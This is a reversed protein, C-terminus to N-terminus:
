YEVSIEEGTKSVKLCTVQQGTLEASREDPQQGGISIVYDGPRVKCEGEETIYAFDRATLTIAVKRKEGATLPVCSIGKLQFGPEFEQADQRKVYVQVTEWLPYDSENTVTASVTVEQGVDTVGVSVKEEDYVVKGYHLGYGFPYLVNKNEYRYTRHAMSYDTFEPLNETGQYFTVPLKGSPSFEGFLLQAISKGGRAGPYWCDVIAKVNKQQQAWSLDIASGALLLVIVPKGVAAITELLEEQLGPLGLGLKDGSAYANGADGEEGEISADLGLCLVVVDSQEATALAEQIRDNREGLAEVKDKYLGCGQAYYVKVDEGVYQQIGELPTIYQSSTGEYNGVLAARSNANPGIVAISNLKEKQLPLFDGVNKLLVLSRRSVDMSVAIHEPCEVKDFPIDDYPSPYEELMGLRIRVDLLREVAETIVEETVLGMEYAKPLHLFANGCNLDCGNNVAMAASEAAIGTVHHHLHFDNIAWCDSVVHGEFGFEERLIDKLLTKSGCAPEGNVRNYAGMVAEVGADKVCRKFAYLYTDYLDHKSVEANFEHRLAEPGSHVAYHKACAAAKLHEKDPGQLGRIYACGLRGTLYPDEGYTEHGRGWRPDRFINVNPAWYTLGKYIGRDGRKSFQNFKARGETSVVDGAKELLKEDFTAAMAIAQPFMTAVGTRAVGHLAENWWNYAPIGLREIAPSAYLMQSMKEELTMQATLKQAYERTKASM